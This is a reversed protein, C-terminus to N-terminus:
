AVQRGTQCYDCSGVSNIKNKKILYFTCLQIKKRRILHEMHSLFSVEETMALFMQRLDEAKIDQKTSGESKCQLKGLKSV